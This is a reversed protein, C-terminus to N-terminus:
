TLSRLVGLGPLHRDHLRGARHRRRQVALRRGAAVVSRQMGGEPEPLRQDPERLQLAPRHQGDGRRQRVHHPKRGGGHNAADATIQSDSLLTGGVTSGTENYCMADNVYGAYANVSNYNNNPATGVNNAPPNDESVTWGPGDNTYVTDWQATSLDSNQPINWIGDCELSPTNSIGTAVKFTNYDILVRYAQANSALLAAASLTLLSPALKM